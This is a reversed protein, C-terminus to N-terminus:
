KIEYCNADTPTTVLSGFGNHLRRIIMTKKDLVFSTLIMTDSDPGWNNTGMVTIFMLSRDDDLVVDYESTLKFTNDTQFAKDKKVEISYTFDKDQVCFYSKATASIPTLLVMVLLSKIAKLKM